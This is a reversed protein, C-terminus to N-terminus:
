HILRSDYARSRQEIGGSFSFLYSEFVLRDSTFSLFVITQKEVRYLRYAKGKSRYTESELNRICQTWGYYTLLVEDVLLLVNLRMM